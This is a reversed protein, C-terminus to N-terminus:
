SQCVQLEKQTQVANYADRWQYRALHQQVLRHTYMVGAQRENAVLSIQAATRLSSQDYRRALLKAADQVQRM